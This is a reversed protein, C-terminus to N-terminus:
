QSRGRRSLRVALLYAHWRDLDDLVDGVFNLPGKENSKDWCWVMSRHFWEDVRNRHLIERIMLTDRFDEGKRKILFSRLYSSWDLPNKSM